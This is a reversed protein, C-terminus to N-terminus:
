LEEHSVARLTAEQRRAIPDKSGRKAVWDDFSDYGHVEHIFVNEFNDKV